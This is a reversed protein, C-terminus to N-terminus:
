SRSMKLRTQLKEDVHGQSATKSDSGVSLLNTKLLKGCILAKLASPCGSSSRNAQRIEGDGEQQNSHHDFSPKSTNIREPTYRTGPFAVDLNGKVVKLAFKEPVNGVFKFPSLGVICDQGLIKQHIRMDLAEGTPGSVYGVGVGKGILADKLESLFDGKGVNCAQVKLIGVEKLGARHLFQAVTKADYREFNNTNGHGFLDLRSHKDLKSLSGEYVPRSFSEHGGDQRLDHIFYRNKEPVKRTLGNVIASDQITRDSESSIIYRNKEASSASRNKEGIKLGLKSFISFIAKIIKNDYNFSPINFYLM